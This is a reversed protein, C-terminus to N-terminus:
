GIPEDRMNEIRRRVKANCAIRSFASASEEASPEEYINEIAYEAQQRAQKM